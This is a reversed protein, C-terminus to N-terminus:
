AIPWQNRLKSKTKINNHNFSVAYDALKSILPHCHRDVTM